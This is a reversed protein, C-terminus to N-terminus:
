RKDIKSGSEGVQANSIPKAKAIMKKSRTMLQTSLPDTAMKRELHTHM